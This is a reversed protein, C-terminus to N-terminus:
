PQVKTKSVESAGILAGLFTSVALCLASVQEAYPLGLAAAITVYFTGIAPIGLCSAWKLVDYVGAPMWYRTYEEVPVDDPIDPLANKEDM